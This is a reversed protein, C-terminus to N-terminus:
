VCTEGLLSSSKECVTTSLVAATCSLRCWYRPPCCFVHDSACLAGGEKYRGAEKGGAIEAFLEEALRAALQPSFPPVLAGEGDVDDGGGTEGAGGMGRGDGLTARAGTPVWGSGVSGGIRMRREEIDAEGSCGAIGSGWARRANERLIEFWAPDPEASSAEPFTLGRGTTESVVGLGRGTAGALAELLLLNAERSLVRKQNSPQQEYLFLDPSPLLADDCPSRWRCAEVTLNERTEKKASRPRLEYKPSPSPEGRGSRHGGSSSLFYIIHWVAKAGPEVVRTPTDVFASCLSSECFVTFDHPWPPVLAIHLFYNSALLVHRQRCVSASSIKKSLMLREGSRHLSLATWVLSDVGVGCGWRSGEGIRDRKGRGEGCTFQSFM